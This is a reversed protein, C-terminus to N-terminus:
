NYLSTKIIVELAKVIMDKTMYPTNPKDLIQETIYPVHIFGGKINLNNKKIYYLLSYMIHNCVFTGATNSIASPISIKNLEEKIRKIPLTSFYANEGDNFIIEDIPQNGENDKIRADDINVAVRELSIEYRGGAQGVCIVIDPKINELSDFLKEYSKKFVTPLKLKIIEIDDINNHLSSVAEWSPNIEEKDFPEFGTILAKM